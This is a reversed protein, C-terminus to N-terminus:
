SCYPLNLSPTFCLCYFAGVVRAKTKNILAVIEKMYDLNKLVINQNSEFKKTGDFLQNLFAKWDINTENTLNEITLQKYMNNTNKLMALQIEFEIMEFIQKEVNLQKSAHKTLYKSLDKLWTRYTKLQKLHKLPYM